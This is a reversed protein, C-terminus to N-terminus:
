ISMKAKKTNSTDAFCLPSEAVAMSYYIDSEDKDNEANGDGIM